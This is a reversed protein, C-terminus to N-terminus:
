NGLVAIKYIQGKNVNFMRYKHDRELEVLVTILLSGDKGIKVRDLKGTYRQRAIGLEEAVKAEAQAQKTPARFAGYWIHLRTGDQSQGAKSATKCGHQFLTDLVEQVSMPAPKSAPKTKTAVGASPVVAAEVDGRAKFTVAM